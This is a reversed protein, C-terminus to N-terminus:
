MEAIAPLMCSRIRTERWASRCDAIWHSIVSHKEGSKGGNERQRGLDSGREAHIGGSPRRSDDTRSMTPPGPEAQSCASSTTDRLSFEPCSNKRLAPPSSCLRPFSHARVRCCPVAPARNEQPPPLSMAKADQLLDTALIPNSQHGYLYELPDPSVHHNGVPTNSFALASGRNGHIHRRATPSPPRSPAPPSVHSLRLGSRFSDLSGLALIERDPERLPFAPRALQCISQLYAESSLAEAHVTLCSNTQNMDQLLEEYGERITPLRKKAMLRSRPRM